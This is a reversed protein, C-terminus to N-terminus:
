SGAEARALAQAAIDAGLKALQASPGGLLLEIQEATAHCLGATLTLQRKSGVLVTAAGLATRADQGFSEGVLGVVSIPSENM